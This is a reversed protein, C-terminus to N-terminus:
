SAAAKSRESRSAIVAEIQRVRATWSNAAAVARLRVRVEPDRGKSRAVDLAAAFEEATAVVDVEPHAACEPLATTIVARGGALYEYLKLPSTAMTIPNLRFPIIAVDFLRLYGPLALYPRPGIWAVNSLGRLATRHLSGDYDPGILLFSWDPRRRATAALLEYDFWHALAGYYGAIPRGARRLHLVIPDDPAPTDDAAFRDDEAANPVYVADTRRALAQTHLTRAVSAVVDAEVLAREHNRHLLRADYDTFVALDDIWDYVVTAPHPHDLAEHFNYPLTWLVPNPIQRLWSAPGSFLFLDPEIEEFGYVDDATSTSAFIAVYGSRAFARALHHPRQFLKVNWGISPLFIVAGKSRAVRAVVEILRHSGRRCAMDLLRRLGARVVRQRRSGPPVLRARWAARHTLRALASAVKWTAQALAPTLRRRTRPVAKM